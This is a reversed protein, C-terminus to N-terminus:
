FEDAAFKWRDVGDSQNQKMKSVLGRSFPIAVWELIIAQLIGHFSSGPPHCDMPDCLQVSSPSKRKPKGPLGTPLADAQLAASGPEIGPDPLEVPSPIPEGSWYEQAERTVWSTFFRRAIHSVQAQDRPQSSGRSFPFVVWELLRTQLIRHVRYDM